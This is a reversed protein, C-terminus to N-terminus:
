YIVFKGKERADELLDQELATVLRHRRIGVLIAKIDAECYELPLVEGANIIDPVFAVNVKGYLRDREEIFSGRMSPLLSGYDKGFDRALEVISVWRGGYDTYKDAASSALSDAYAMDDIDGSSLNRKITGIDPSDASIRMFWAKVVPFDAVFDQRHSDYYEEVESPTVVTDLRENVYRQEYRYKLLAKRYEELEYTVDKEQKSLKEEAIDAYVLDSAWSNIYQMVLKMSDEPSTGPPVLSAVVSKGLTHNGVRAIVPDKDFVSSIAKCSVLMPLAVLAIAIRIGYNM